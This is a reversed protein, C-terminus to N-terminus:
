KWSLVNDLTVNYFINPAPRQNVADWALVM